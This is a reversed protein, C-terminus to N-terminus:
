RRVREAQEILQEARLLTNLRSSRPPYQASHPDCAEFSGGCHRCIISRGLYRVRVQLSRGCTPCPQVFFMSASMGSGEMSRQLVCSGLACSIKVCDGEVVFGLSDIRPFVRREWRLLPRSSAKPGVLKRRNGCVPFYVGVITGNECDRDMTQGFRCIHSFHLCTVLQNRFVKKPLAHCFSVEKSDRTGRIRIVSNQIAEIIQNIEVLISGSMFAVRAGSM